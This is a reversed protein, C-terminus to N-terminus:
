ISYSQKKQLIKRIESFCIIWYSITLLGGLVSCFIIFFHGIPDGQESLFFLTLGSIELIIQFVLAYSYTKRPFKLYWFEKKAPLHLFLSMIQSFAIGTAGVYFGIWFNSFLAILMGFVPLLFQLFLDLRKLYLM